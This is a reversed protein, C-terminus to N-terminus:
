TLVQKYCANKVHFYTPTKDNTQKLSIEVEVRYLHALSNGVSSFVSSCSALMPETM